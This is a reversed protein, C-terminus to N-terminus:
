NVMLKTNPEANAGCEPCKGSRLGVAILLTLKQFSTQPKTNEVLLRGKWKCVTCKDDREITAM